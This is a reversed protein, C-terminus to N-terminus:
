SGTLDQPGHELIVLSALQPTSRRDSALKVFDGNAHM